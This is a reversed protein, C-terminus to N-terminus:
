YGSTTRSYYSREFGASLVHRLYHCFSRALLQMPAPSATTQYRRITPLVRAYTEGGVELMTWLNRIPFKPVINLTITRTLPLYGILRLAMLNAGNAVDKIEIAKLERTEPLILSRGSPDILDSRPFFRQGREEVEIIRTAQLAM